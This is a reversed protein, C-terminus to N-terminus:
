CDANMKGVTRRFVAEVHITIESCYWHCDLMSSNCPFNSHMIESTRPALKLLQAFYNNFRWFVVVNCLLVRFALVLTTDYQLNGM